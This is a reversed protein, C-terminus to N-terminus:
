QAPEILIVEEKEVVVQGPAFGKPKRVYKKPTYTVPCLTDNKRKSYYAALAAAREIVPTPFVKGSQHKVIVHSGKVDKAHLWLDDKHSHKQTLLDNNAANRGVLITYGLLEYSKFLEEAALNTKAKIISHDKNYKRLDKVSECQSVFHLQEKLKVIEGTIANITAKLIAIEKKQNKSKRYYNEANRQPTFNSNLKISIIQENDFHPLDVTSAGAPILHMYAMIMDAVVQFPVQTDIQHLRQQTKKFHKESRKLSQTIVQLLQKQEWLLNKSSVFRQYFENLVPVAQQASYFDSDTEFLTLIPLRDNWHLHYSPAEFQVLLDQVLKWKDLLTAQAYGFHNLHQFAQSGLTPLFKKLDGQYENFTRQSTDIDRPLQEPVINMDKILQSKFLQKAQNNQCLIINAQHGFMKFLLEWSGELRMGICRENRYCVVELIRKDIIEPFLDITNRRARQLDKPFRLVALVSTLVGHIFFDKGNIDIGIVLEDKDQSYCTAILAGQLAHHLEQALQRLLFYSNHM